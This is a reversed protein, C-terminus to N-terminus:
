SRLRRRERRIPASMPITVASTFEFRGAFEGFAANAADFASQDWDVLDLENLALVIHRIGAARASAAHRRAESTLGERVDTLLVLVDGPERPLSLIRRAGSRQRLRTAADIAQLHEILASKGAGAAGGVSIRLARTAPKQPLNVPPCERLTGNRGRRAAVAPM